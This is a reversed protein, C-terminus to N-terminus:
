APEKLERLQYTETAYAEDETGIKEAIRRIMAEDILIMRGPEKRVWIEGKSDRFVAHLM